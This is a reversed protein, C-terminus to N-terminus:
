ARAGVASLVFREDLCLRLLAEVDRLDERNLSRVRALVDAADHIIVGDLPHPADPKGFALPKQVPYPGAVIIAPLSLGLRDAPIWVDVQSPIATAKALLPAAEAPDMPGGTAREPGNQIVLDGQLRENGSVLALKADLVERVFFTGGEPTHHDTIHFLLDDRSWEGPLDGTPDALLSALGLSITLQTPRPPILTGEAREVWEPVIREPVYTDDARLERGEADFYWCEIERLWLEHLHRRADREDWFAVRVREVPQAPDARMRDRHVCLDIMTRQSVSTGPARSITLLRESPRYLRMSIPAKFVANEHIHAGVHQDAMREHARLGQALAPASDLHEDHFQVWTLSEPFERVLWPGHDIWRRSVLHKAIGAPRFLVGVGMVTHYNFHWTPGRSEYPGTYRRDIVLVPTDIGAALAVFADLDVLGVQDCKTLEITRDYHRALRLGARGDPLKDWMAYVSVHGGDSQMVGLWDETAYEEGVRSIVPVHDRLRPFHSLRELITGLDGEISM